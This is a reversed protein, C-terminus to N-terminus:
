PNAKSLFETYLKRYIEAETKKIRIKILLFSGLKLFCWGFVMFVISKLIWGMTYIEISFMFASAMILFSSFAFRGSTSLFFDALKIAMVYDIKYIETSVVFDERRSLQIIISMGISSGLFSIASFILLSSLPLIHLPSDVVSSNFYPFM